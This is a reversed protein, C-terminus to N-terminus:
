KGAKTPKWWDSPDAAYDALTNESWLDAVSGGRNVQDDAPPFADAQIRNRVTSRSIGLFKAVGRVTYFM